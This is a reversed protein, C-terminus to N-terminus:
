GAVKAGRIAAPLPPSPSAIPESASADSTFSPDEGHVASGDIVGGREVQLSGYRVEGRVMAGPAVYLHNRVTVKGDVRGGVALEEAILEGIVCGTPGISVHGEATLGGDIHGDVQVPGYVRVMGEIVTGKGIVTPDPTNSKAKYGFV